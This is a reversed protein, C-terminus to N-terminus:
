ARRRRMGALGALAVMALSAPEPVVNVNFNDFFATYANNNFGQATAFGYYNGLSAPLTAIPESSVLSTVTAGSGGPVSVSATVDLNAGNPVGTLSLTVWQGSPNNKAPTAPSTSFIVDTSLLTGPRVLRLTYTYNGSSNSNLISARYGGDASVLQGPTGGSTAYGLLANAAGAQVDWSAASFNSGTGLNVDVSVSFGDAFSVLPDTDQVSGTLFRRGGNNPSTSARVYEVRENALTTTQNSPSVSSYTTLTVDGAVNGSFNQSYPFAVPAAQTVAAGALGILASLAAVHIIEGKM